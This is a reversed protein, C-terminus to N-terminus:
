IVSFTQRRGLWVQVVAARRKNEKQLLLPQQGSWLSSHLSTRDYIPNLGPWSKLQFDLSKMAGAFRMTRYVWREKVERLEWVATLVLVPVLTWKLFSFPSPRWDQVVSTLWILCFLKPKSPTFHNAASCKSHKIHDGTTLTLTLTHTHGDEEQNKEYWKPTLIREGPSLWDTRANCYLTTISINMFGRRHSPVTNQHGLHTHTHCSLVHSYTHSLSTHTYIHKHAHLQWQLRNYKWVSTHTHTHTFFPHWAICLM